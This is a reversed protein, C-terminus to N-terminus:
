IIYLEETSSYNTLKKTGEETIKILDEIHWMENPDTRVNITEVCLVMNPKIEYTEAERLWPREHIYLGLGHAISRPHPRFNFEKFVANAEILLECGQYGPKLVHNIMKKHVARLRKYRSKIEFSPRDVVAMRAVDSYYGNFYGGADVKILDGPKLAMPAELYDYRKGNSMVELEIFAVSDAGMKLLSNSINNALSTSTDGTKTEEFSQQIAKETTIGASQLLQIEADTKIMRAEDFVSSSDLFTASPFLKNLEEFRNVPFHNKEIGISGNSLEKEIIVKNLINIPSQDVYSRGRYDVNNIDRAYFDYGRFDKILLNERAQGPAIFVPEGEAPWFIIYMRDTLVRMQPNYFGAFYTINEPSTAIVADLESEEVLIKLRSLNSLTSRDTKFRHNEQTELIIM